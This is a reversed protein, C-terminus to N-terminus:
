KRRREKKKNNKNEIVVVEKKTNLEQNEESNSLKGTACNYLYDIKDIMIYNIYLVAFYVLLIISSIWLTNSTFNSIFVLFILPLGIIVSKLFEKEQKWSVVKLRVLWIFAIVGATFFYIYKSVIEMFLIIKDKGLLIPVEIGNAIDIITFTAITIFYGLILWKLISNCQKLYGAFKHYKQM